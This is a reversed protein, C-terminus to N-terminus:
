FSFCNAITSYHFYCYNRNIEMNESCHKQIIHPTFRQVTFYRIGCEFCKGESDPKNHILTVHLHLSRFTPASNDLCSLCRGPLQFFKLMVKDKEILQNMKKIQEEIPLMFTFRRTFEANMEFTFYIFNLDIINFCHQMQIHTQFFTAGLFSQDCVTCYCIAFETTISHHNLCHTRLSLFHPFVSSCTLCRARLILVNTPM